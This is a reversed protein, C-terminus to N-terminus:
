LIGSLRYGDCEWIRQQPARVYLSTCVYRTRMSFLTVCCVCVIQLVCSRVVCLVVCLLINVVRLVVNKGEARGDDGRESRVQACVTRLAM